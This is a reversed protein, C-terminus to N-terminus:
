MCKTANCTINQDKHRTLLIDFDSTIKNCTLLWREIAEHLVVSIYSSVTFKLSIVHTFHVSCINPRSAVVSFTSHPDFMKAASALTFCRSLPFGGECFSTLYSSITVNWKCVCVHVRKSGQADHSVTSWPVGYCYNRWGALPLYLSQYLDNCLYVSRCCHSLLFKYFKFSYRTVQSSRPFLERLGILIAKSNKRSERFPRCFRETIPEIM